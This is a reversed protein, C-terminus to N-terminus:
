KKSREKIKDQILEIIYNAGVESSKGLNYVYENVVDTIIKNYKYKDKDKLLERITEKIRNLEEVSLSKGIKNRAWINIPEIDIDKYNPNMIKMPTDIYLVPKKTTFAYEFGIDSWDTIVLDADFVTSTKSFDTQIEINKSSEYQSKMKDFYDKKHRVHQPHPRVIINYDEDKLNDLIKELCLDVINDKQWSPAILITKKKNSKKKNSEYNKIMDDLLPYGFEFIKRKLNYKKNFVMEEDKQHKGTTFVTDYHDTAHPRLTLNTSGQGHPYYVYHINKRLYSRKIHYTELDPMTMVIVDADLKMMLTILKRNGIYYAKIHENEKELNFINDNYDSTIYHITINTNELIYDIVGKYYKYFVNSESYFVLHKNVISFFRKYDQKEKRIEEKTRKTKTSSMMEQLELRTSELEKYDVYKKPSIFINLLWQQLIALLNSVTWYLAVGAPVFMGLYLSLGVSLVLMGYKNAASQEKQLVNMMNQGICLVLSSLGAILPILWAIGKKQVAVWSLDIGLFRMNLNKVDSIEKESLIGSYDVLDNKIDNVVVLQKSSSEKDVEPHEKEMLEVSNNIVKEDVKVLYDLPHNIVEVLGMLLVIQIFLPILSALASYNEKKYLISTENAIKDKDGFFKIKIKNIMPQM